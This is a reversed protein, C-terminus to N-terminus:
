IFGYTAYLQQLLEDKRLQPLFSSKLANINARTFHLENLGLKTLFRYEADLTCDFVTPDDKNISFNAGEEALKLIPHRVSPDVGGTFYSSHPCTEFHINQALCKLYVNSDLVGNYGHGIREAHLREVAFEVNVAPGVEGAHVTRHIGLEKAKTFTNIVDENFSHTVTSHRNEPGAIDIGVVGKDRFQQVLELVEKDWEPFQTMCSLILSSYVGFEQEGRKLGKLVSEIVQKPTCPNAPHTYKETPIDESFNGEERWVNEVTNSSLQPSMRVEFYLVGEKAEDECLEYAIRELIDADGGEFHLHLEVRSKPVKKVDILKRLLSSM